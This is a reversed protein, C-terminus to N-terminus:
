IHTHTHTNMRSPISYMLGSHFAYYRSFISKGHTSHFNGAKVQTTCHQYFEWPRLKQCMLLEAHAKQLSLVPLPKAYLPIHHWRQTTITQQTHTHTHWTHVHKLASAWREVPPRLWDSWWASWRSLTTMMATVGSSRGPLYLTPSEPPDTKCHWVLRTQIQSLTIQTHDSHSRVRLLPILSTHHSVLHASCSM